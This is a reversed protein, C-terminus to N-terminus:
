LLLGFILPDNELFNAGLTPSSGVVRLNLTEHEVSQALRASVPPQHFITPCHWKHSYFIQRWGAALISQASTSFDLQWDRNNTQLLLLELHVISKTLLNGAHGLPYPTPRRFRLNPTRTGGHTFLIKALFYNQAETMTLKCLVIQLGRYRLLCRTLRMIQLGHTRAEGPAFRKNCWKRCILKWSLILSQNPSITQLHVNWNNPFWLFYNQGTLFINKNLKLDWKWVQLPARTVFHRSTSFYFPQWAPMCPLCGTCPTHHTTSGAQGAPGSFLQSTLIDVVGHIGLRDGM